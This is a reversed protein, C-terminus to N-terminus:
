HNPLAVPLFTVTAKLLKSPFDLISDPFCFSCFSSSFRLYKQNQRLQLFNSHESSNLQAFKAKPKQNRAISNKVQSKKVHSHKTM